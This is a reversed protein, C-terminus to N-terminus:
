GVTLAIVGAAIAALWCYWAFASLNGRKVLRVLLVLAFYGSVLAALGGALLQSGDLGHGEYDALQLLSAGLIAPVSMLFSFRAAFDRRLGLFLAIAITTGSRSIGPTIALGQAAGIVLAQTWSFGALDVTGEDRNRTSFLLLGTLAFTLPLVSPRAFLAEFTEEFALGIAATPVSAVLIMALMKVGGRQLVPGDGVFPDVLIDRLTHRYFFLVPVLTGLHLVLDFLVHDQGIEFFQQFLVLHGSSSVPLFETLGQLTGLFLPGAVGGDAAVEATQDM